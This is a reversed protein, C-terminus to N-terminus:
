SGCCIEEKELIYCYDVTSFDLFPAVVITYQMDGENKVFSKITGIGFGRPFVMGEGSSFVTDGEQVHSLHGVHTLSGTSEAGVGQYIGQTGTGDCYSAVKCSPDSILVIKSYYPYVETVKGVLCNKFVVATDKHIGKNSGADVLFFNGDVGSQRMLVRVLVANSNKYQEKFSRIEETEHIFHETAKMECLQAQLEDREKVVTKYADDIMSRRKFEEYLHVLPDLVLRDLQVLPFALCSICRDFTGPDNTLSRHAIFFCLVAGVGCVVVRSTGKKKNM